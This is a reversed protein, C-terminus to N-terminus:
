VRQYKGDIKLFVGVPTLKHAPDSVVTVAKVTGITVGQLNVPAGAKLGAANEFYAHVTLKQSFFGLGSSSTMLFLLTTLAVVAVLVIVGVKLQSWRVEQQSPM